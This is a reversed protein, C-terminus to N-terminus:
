LTYKKKIYHLSRGSCSGDNAEYNPRDPSIASTMTFNRQSVPRRGDQHNERQVTEKKHQM